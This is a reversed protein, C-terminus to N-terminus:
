RPLNHDVSIAGLTASGTIRLTYTQAGGAPPAAPAAAKVPHASAKKAPPPTPSADDDSSDSMNDSMNSMVSDMMKGADHMGHVHIQDHGHPGTDGGDIAGLIAKASTTVRVGPPVHVNLNGLAVDAELTVDNSWQGDFSLDITGAAGNVTIRDVRANGLGGATFAAAGVDIKMSEMHVGNVSDFKVTTETAGGDITLNRVSLGGLQITAEAAGIEFNLDLPVHRALEVHLEGGETKGPFIYTADKMGLVLTRKAADFTAVPTVHDAEYRLKASYLVPDTAPRLTLTGVGYTVRVTMPASDTLTRSVSYTRIDQAAGQRALVLGAMVAVTSAVIRARSM